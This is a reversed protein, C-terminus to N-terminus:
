RPAPERLSHQGPMAALTEALTAGGRLHEMVLRACETSQECTLLHPGRKLPISRQRDTSQRAIRPPTRNMM